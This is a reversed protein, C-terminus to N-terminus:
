QKALCNRPISSMSSVDDLECGPKREEHAAPPKRNEQLPLDVIQHIEIPFKTKQKAKRQMKQAFRM